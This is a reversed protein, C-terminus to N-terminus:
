RGPFAAATWAIALGAAVRLGYAAGGTALAVAGRSLVSAALVALLAREASDEGMQGAGALQGISAAAAHVQHDLRELVFALNRLEGVTGAGAHAAHWTVSERGNTHRCHKWVAHQRSACM